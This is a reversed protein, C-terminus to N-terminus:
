GVALPLGVYHGFGLEEVVPGVLRLPCPVPRVFGVLFDLLLPFSLFFPCHLPQPSASFPFPSLLPRCMVGGGGDASSAAPM